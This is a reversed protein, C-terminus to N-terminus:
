GKALQMIEAAKEDSVGLTAWSKKSQQKLKFVSRAVEPTMGISLLKQVRERFSGTEKTEEAAPAQSPKSEPVPVSAPTDLKGEPAPFIKPTTIKKDFLKETVIKGKKPKTKAKKKDAKSPKTKKVKGAKTPAPAKTATPDPIGLKEWSVKAAKKFALLENWTGVSGTRKWHEYLKTAQEKRSLQAVQQVTETVAKPDFPNDLNESGPNELATVEPVPAAPAEAEYLVPAQEQASEVPKSAEPMALKTTVVGQGKPGTIRIGHTRHVHQGALALALLKKGEPDDTIPKNQRLLSYQLNSLEAIIHYGCVRMKNADYSPVTIVDEPALKALVCVDGDFNRIYGRRAVHLGNSCEHNRNHDVLSPDMYVYAGVWQKVNRTHCDVYKDDSRRLVKYILISGDDAIPLDAREMFKLLDDVSHSRQEIVAGLRRLFNNVGETSGMKVARSFQTKIKEMGPIVKNDVVAIITHTSDDVQNKQNDTLGDSEVVNGQKAVDKEHFDPSSAPVAHALIENVVDMTHKVAVPQVQEPVPEFKEEEEKAPKPAAEEADPELEVPPPLAAKEMAAAVEDSEAVDHLGALKIHDQVPVPLPSNVDIGTAELLARDLEPIGGPQPVNGISMNIVPAVAAKAAAEAEQRAEESFLRKLKDKAVRFFKVVGGSSEEFHAYSNDDPQEVMVDAYGNQLLQPTAEQIIHRLRIDGQPILITSGDEKYLTLNRTDVVAAVIRITENKM